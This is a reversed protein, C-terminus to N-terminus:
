REVFINPIKLVANIKKKDIVKAYIETTKVNKHGLLKSVTYIDTDMTLQLTAFSHRASHFTIHKDIGAKAIWKRLKKNNYASYILGEFVKEEDKGKEGILKIAQENIPLYEIAKTKKIVFNLTWGTNEDYNVNKWKLNEIDSFRLGTMCSFLFARKLLSNDCETNVLKQIEELILYQRNTEEEKISRVRTTPNDAILKNRHAEKLAARVKNFYSLATNQALKTNRDSIKENLLYNKFGELFDEDVKSIAIERGNCYKKLHKLTSKWNGYTGNVDYKKTVLQEFYGLFGVKGNSSSVFGFRGNQIDLIKESRIAEALRIIDRNYDREIQNKPKDFIQLKLSEYTCEKTNENYYKLYFTNMRVRGKQKNSNSLQGKRQRLYVKM